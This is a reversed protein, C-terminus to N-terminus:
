SALRKWWKRLRQLGPRQDLEDLTLNALRYAEESLERGRSFDFFERDDVPQPLVILEIEKPV